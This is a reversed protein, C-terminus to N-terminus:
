VKRGMMLRNIDGLSQKCAGCRIAMRGTVDDWGLEQMVLSAIADETVRNQQGCQCTVVRDGCMPRANM